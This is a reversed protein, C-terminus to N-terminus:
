RYEAESTGGQNSSVVIGGFAVLPYLLILLFDDLVISKIWNIKELSIYPIHSYVHVHTYMHTYLCACILSTLVFIDINM